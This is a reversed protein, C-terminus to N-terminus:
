DGECIDTIVVEARTREACVNYETTYQSKYYNIFNNDDITDLITNSNEIVMRDSVEAPSTAIGLYVLIAVITNM